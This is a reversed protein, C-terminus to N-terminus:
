ELEESICREVSCVEEPVPATRQSWRSTGSAGPLDQILVLKATHEATGHFFVSEEKEGRILLGPLLIASRRLSEAGAKRQDRYRTGVARVRSSETRCNTRCEAGAIM